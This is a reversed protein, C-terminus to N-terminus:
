ARRRRRCIGIRRIRCGVNGRRRRLWKRIESKPNKPRVALEAEPVFRIGAARAKAQVRAMREEISESTTM